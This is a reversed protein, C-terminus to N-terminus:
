KHTAPQQQGHSWCRWRHTPRRQRQAATMMQPHQTNNTHASNNDMPASNNSTPPLAQEGPHTTWPQQNTTQPHLPSMDHATHDSTLLPVHHQIQIIYDTVQTWGSEHLPQQTMMQNVKTKHVKTTRQPHSTVTIQPPLYMFDITHNFGVLSAWHNSCRTCTWFAQTWDGTLDSKQISVCPLLTTVWYLSCCHHWWENNPQWMVRLSTAGAVGVVGGMRRRRNHHSAPQEQHPPQPHPIRICNTAMPSLSLPPPSVLTATFLCHTSMTFSPPPPPQLLTSWNSSVWVSCWCFDVNLKPM